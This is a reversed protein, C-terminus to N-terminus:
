SEEHKEFEWMVFDSFFIFTTLWLIVFLAFFEVISSYSLLEFIYVLFYFWVIGLGIFGAFLIILCLIVDYNESIDNMWGKVHEFYTENKM